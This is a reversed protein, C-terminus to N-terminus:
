QNGNQHIKIVHRNYVDVAYCGGDFSLALRTKSQTSSRLLTKTNGKEIKRIASNGWDAVWVNGIFDVQVSYPNRINYYYISATLLQFSDMRSSQSRDMKSGKQEELSLGRIIRLVKM